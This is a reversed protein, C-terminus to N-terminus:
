EGQENPYMRNFQGYSVMPLRASRLAALAASDALLATMLYRAVSVSSRVVIEDVRLATLVIGVISVSHGGALRSRYATAPSRHSGWSGCSSRWGILMPMAYRIGDSAAVPPV